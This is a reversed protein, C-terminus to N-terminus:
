FVSYKRFREHLIADDFFIAELATQITEAIQRCRDSANKFDDPYSERDKLAARVRDQGFIELLHDYATLLKALAEKTSAAIKTATSENTALAALQALPPKALWERLYDELDRAATVRDPALLLTCLPGAFLVKRTTRLKILRLFSDDKKSRWRKAGFDVAITRWLRVLDNVLHRPVKTPADHPRRPPLYDACYRRLINGVVAHYTGDQFVSVAETLLLMRHTLNQNSDSELGIREYLNAAIVIDGFVGQGGPEAYQLEERVKDAIRLLRRSIEPTCGNQLVVYDCDSGKTVERRAISGLLVLDVDRYDDGSRLERQWSAMVNTKFRSIDTEATMSAIALHPLDVGLGRAAEELDTHM